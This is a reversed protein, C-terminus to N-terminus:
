RKVLKIVQQDSNTKLVAIYIGEPLNNCNITIENKGCKANGNKLKLFHNGNIGKIEISFSSKEKLFFHFTADRSIPNPTVKFSSVDSFSFENIDSYEHPYFFMLLKDINARWLGWSHGEPLELWDLEYNNDLLFDRFDRMNIYLGEYTGWVSAFKINEVGGQTILNFAEYNNPWFAGSHLGCMGFVDPHNYSILASINGGFSAGMVARGWPVKFTHYTADIFPVLEDIFFHRYQNRLNGAYEENRNNPTVFVAILPDVFEENILNDIVTNASGLSIYESGDQFYAVPYPNSRNPNYDPPLYVKLQFTSGTYSSQISENEITGQAVGSLEEIEWPQVYEPMALESNPGFGGSVQNPNLPDLIWNSGDLVFKYDLRANMEFIQSYYWFDTGEINTLPFLNPDWGNFDGPLNVTNANGRYIFNATDTNIYPIGSPEILSMLNDVADMRENVPLSNVYNIFTHFSQAIAIPGILILLALLRLKKM